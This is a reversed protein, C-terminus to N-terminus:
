DGPVPRGMSKYIGEILDKNSKALKNAPDFKLAQRYDKLAARYKIRPSAVTDMMRMSGRKAYLEALDKNKGGSKTLKAIKADIDPTPLPMDAKGADLDATGGAMGHTADHPMASTPDIPPATQAVPTAPPESKPACGAMLGITLALVSLGTMSCRATTQRTMTM